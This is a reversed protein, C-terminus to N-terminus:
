SAEYACNERERETKREKEGKREREGSGERRKGRGKERARAREKGGKLSPVCIGDARPQQWGRGDLL